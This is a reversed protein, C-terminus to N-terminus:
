ERIAKALRDYFRQLNVAEAVWPDVVLPNKFVAGAFPENILEYAIVYPNNKFVKAVQLWYAEFKDLM